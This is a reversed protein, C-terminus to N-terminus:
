TRVSFSPPRRLEVESSGVNGARNSKGIINLHAAGAVVNVHANLKNSRDSDLLSETESDTLTSTGNTGADNDLDFLLQDSEKLFGASNDAPNKNQRGSVCASRLVAGAATIDAWARLVWGFVTTM